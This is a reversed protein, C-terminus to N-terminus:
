GILATPFSSVSRRRSFSRLRSSRSSFFIAAAAPILIAAGAGIAPAVGGKAPVESDPLGFFDPPQAERDEDVCGVGGACGGDAEAGDGGGLLQAAADPVFLLLETGTGSGAGAGAKLLLPQDESSSLGRLAAGATLPAQPAELM